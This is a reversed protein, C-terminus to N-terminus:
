SRNFRNFYYDFENDFVFHKIFNFPVQIREAQIIFTFLLINSSLDCINYILIVIGM